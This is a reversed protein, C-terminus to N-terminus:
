PGLLPSPAGVATGVGGASLEIKCLVGVAAFALEVSGDLEHPILERIVTSGYGEATPTVVPPGGSERWELVLTKPQHHNPLYNWNVSVRGDSTSLAGYKAANTALEHIVMALVRTREVDLSVLPGEVSINRETAWPTLEERVLDALVVGNLRDRSILAQCNAMSRMRRELADAFEDMSSSRERTRQVVSRLAALVNKVRHDLEAILLNKREEAHERDTVGHDLGNARLVSVAHSPLVQSRRRAKQLRDREIAFAVTHAIFDISELDQDTPSRPERYYMAFTGLVQGDVAKIPTSWCARLRHALALERYDAWLPDSAIDTVFVQKGRFAATGCSGAVAGIPKGHIADTYAKPLHPAACHLLHTGEDDLLLISGLMEADSNAEVVRLLEDLADALPIGAAIRALMDREGEGLPHTAGRTLLIDTM